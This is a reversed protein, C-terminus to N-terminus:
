SEGDVIVAAKALVISEHYRHGKSDGFKLLSPSVAIWVTGSVISTVAQMTDTNFPMGSAIVSRYAPKSQVFIKAIDTATDMLENVTEIVTALHRKQVFPLLLLFLQSKLATDRNRDVGHNRVVLQGTQARWTHYAQLSEQTGHDSDVTGSLIQVSRSVEPGLIQSPKELIHETLFYWILAQAFLEIHNTEIFVGLKSFLNHTVQQTSFQMLEPSALRHLHQTALNKIRYQLQKWTSALQDDDIKFAQQSSRLEEIEEIAEDLQLNLNNLENNKNGLTAQLQELKDHMHQGDEAQQRTVEKHRKSEAARKKCVAKHKHQLDALEWELCDIYEDTDETDSKPEALFHNETSEMTEETPQRTPSNCRRHQQHKNPDLNDVVKSDASGETKVRALPGTNATEKTVTAMTSQEPMETSTPNQSSTSASCINWAEKFTRM